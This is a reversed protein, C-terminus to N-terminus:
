TAAGDNPAPIFEPRQDITTERQLWSVAAVRQTQSWNRVQKAKMTIGRLKLGALIEADIAADRIEIALLLPPPDVQVRFCLLFEPLAPYVQNNKLRDDAALVWVMAEELQGREWAQATELGVAVGHAALREVVQEPTLLELADQTGGSQDDAPLADDLGSEGGEHTEPQQNPPEDVGMHGLPQSPDHFLDRQDASSQVKAMREYYKDPDAMVIVIKQGTRDMLEHRSEATKLVDVRAVINKGVVIRGLEAVCAPYDGRFIINLAEAILRRVTKDLREIHVQQQASTLNEFGPMQRFQDVIQELMQLGLTDATLSAANTESM